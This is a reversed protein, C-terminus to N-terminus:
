SSRSIRASRCKSCNLSPSTAWAKPNDLDVALVRYTRARCRSLSIRAAPRPPRDSNRGHRIGFGLADRDFLKGLRERRPEAGAVPRRQRLDDSRMGFQCLLDPRQERGHDLHFLGARGDIRLLARGQRPGLEPARPQLREAIIADDALDASAPHSHNVFGLM